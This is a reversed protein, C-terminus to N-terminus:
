PNRRAEAGMAAITATSSVFGSAFGAFSLGLAPGAARLAIHGCANIAMMLVALKWLTRPNIAGLPDVARDPVLPLIVLAAAALLLGDHV